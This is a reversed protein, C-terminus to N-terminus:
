IHNVQQMDIIWRCSPRDFIQKVYSQRERVSNLVTTDVKGLRVNLPMSAETLLQRLDRTDQAIKEIMAVRESLDTRHRCRSMWLAFPSLFALLDERNYINNM